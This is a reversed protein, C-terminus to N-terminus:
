RPLYPVIQQAVRAAQATVYDKSPGLLWGLPVYRGDRPDTSMDLAANLWSVHPWYKALVRDEPLSSDPGITNCEIPALQEAADNSREANIHAVNTCLESLPAFSQTQRAAWLAQIPARLDVENSISRGRALQSGPPTQDSSYIRLIMVRVSTNQPVDPSKLATKLASLAAKAGLAGSNDLLGGDVFHVETKKVDYCGDRNM